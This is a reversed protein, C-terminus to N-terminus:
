AAHLEGRPRRQRALLRPIRGAPEGAPPPALQTIAAAGMTVFLAISLGLAWGALVDSPWHVGLVLRGVGVGGSLL